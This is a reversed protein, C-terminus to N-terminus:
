DKNLSLSVAINKVCAAVAARSAIPIRQQVARDLIGIQQELQLVSPGDPPRAAWQWAMNQTLLEPVDLRLASEIASAFQESSQSVFDYSFAPLQRMGAMMDAALVARCLKFDQWIQKAESTARASRHVFSEGSDLMADIQDVARMVDDAIHIGPLHKALEPLQHFVRGGYAFLVSTLRRDNLVDLIDLMNTATRLTSASMLVLRPQIHLLLESLRDPAAAQGLFVVDKGRRRLHLALMLIGVEHFEGPACGAVGKRHDTPPPCASFLAMLKRRVLSTAFHETSISVTGEHWGAGLLVQLPQIVRACVDGVSYLAFAESLVHDFGAEDFHQACNLAVSVYRDFQEIPKSSHASNTPQYLGDPQQTVHNPAPHGNQLGAQISRLMSVAQSISMGVEIQRKLWRIIATDRVSYLRYGSDSRPPQPVGYRREWARLTSAEVGSQVAVAKVNFIPEESYDEFMTWCVTHRQELNTLRQRDVFTGPVKM